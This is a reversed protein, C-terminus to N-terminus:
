PGRRETLFQRSATMMAQALQPYQQERTSLHGGLM